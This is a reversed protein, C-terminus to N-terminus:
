QMTLIYRRRVETQELDQFISPTPLMKRAVIGDYLNHFRPDGRSTCIKVLMAHLSKNMVLLFTYSITTGIHFLYLM